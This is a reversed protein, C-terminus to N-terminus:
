TGTILKQLIASEDYGREDCSLLWRFNGVAWINCMYKSPGYRLIGYRWPWVLWHRGKREVSDNETWAFSFNAHLFRSVHIRLLWHVTRVTAMHRAKGYGAGSQGPRGESGIAGFVRYTETLQSAFPLALRELDHLEGAQDAIRHKHGSWLAIHFRGPVYMAM